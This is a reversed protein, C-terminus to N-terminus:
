AGYVPTLEKRGAFGFIRFYEITGDNKLNINVGEANLDVNNGNEDIFHSIRPTDFLKVISAAFNVVDDNKICHMLKGDIYKSTSHLALKGIVEKEQKIRLKEM